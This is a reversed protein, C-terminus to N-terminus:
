YLGHEIFVKEAREALPQPKDQEAPVYDRWYGIEKFISRAKDLAAGHLIGELALRACAAEFSVLIALWKEDRTLHFKLSHVHEIDPRFEIVGATEPGWHYEPHVQWAKRAFRSLRGSIPKLTDEGVRCAIIKRPDAGFERILAGVPCLGDRSLSGDFLMMGKYEIAALVMPITASARVAVDLPAPEDSIQEMDGKVPNLFVGERCFIVQSGDKTTAMTVYPAPWGKVSYEDKVKNLYKSLKRTGMLGTSPWEVHETKSAAGPYGAPLRRLCGLQRKLSLWIGDAFTVHDSFRTEVTLHLAERANLGCSIVSGFIAGGSAGLIRRFKTVGALSCAAYAGAGALVATAGGSSVALEYEADEAYTSTACFQSM